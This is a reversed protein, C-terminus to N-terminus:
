PGDELIVGPVPGRPSHERLQQRTEPRLRLDWRRLDVFGPDLVQGGTDIGLASQFGTLGAYSQHRAWIPGWEFWAQGPAAFYVNDVFRLRLQELTM